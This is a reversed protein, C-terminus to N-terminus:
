PCAPTPLTDLRVLKGILVFQGYDLKLRRMIGNEYLLASLSYIPAQDVGKAADFYTVTVPWHMMTAFGADAIPAEDGVDSPDTSGEGIVVTAPEATEGDDIGDYAMFSLFREGALAAAITRTVQETPFVVDASLDFSKRSPKQLKVHVGAATRAADGVAVDGPAGNDITQNDFSMTGDPKEITVARSDIVARHDETDTADTVFRTTTKYGECESGKFETVIRGTMTGVDPADANPDLVLDHVARYSALPVAASAACDMALLALVSSLCLLRLMRRGAGQPLVEKARFVSAGIESWRVALAIASDGSDM